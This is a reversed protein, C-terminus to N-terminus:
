EAAGGMRVALAKRDFSREMAEEKTIRGARWLDHLCDDMLVM